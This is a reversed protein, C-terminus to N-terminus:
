GNRFIDKAIPIGIQSLAACADYMPLPTAMLMMGNEHALSKMGQSPLKDNVLLVACASVIDATRIAQETALSTVLLCGPDITVLIDSMLDGAVISGIRINDFNGSVNVINAPLTEIIDSITIV